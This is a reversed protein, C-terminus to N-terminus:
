TSPQQRGGFLKKVFAILAIIGILLFKKFAIIALFLGKLMGTKAAIGGAVLAALGYTAIKDTSPNFDAYRQGESFDVMTLIGPTAAEVQPLQSIGSVSNLNLVGARGLVRLNYNLTNEGDGRGFKLEKAWYFKHTQKDYRPTAAWGVLEIPPYGDKVRQASSERTATQMEKLLKDYNITEADRDKIHGDEQYTVVVCWANDSLPDFNSPVIVGLIDNESGPNGWIGTLLTSSSAPDLYRFSESLNITALGDRLSIKGSKYTLRETLGRVEAKRADDQASFAVMQAAILLGSWLINGLNMSRQTRQVM